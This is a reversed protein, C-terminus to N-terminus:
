EIFSAVKGKEFVVYMTNWRNKWYRWKDQDLSMTAHAPPYGRAIVVADKSMGKVMMGKGIAKREQSSFKSLNVKKTGFTRSLFSDLDLKTYKPENQITIEEGKYLIVVGRKASREYTVKSNVPIFSGINYNTGYVISEGRKNNDVWMNIQTYVAKKADIDAQMASSVSAGAGGCGSVFFGMAVAMAMMVCYKVAKLM